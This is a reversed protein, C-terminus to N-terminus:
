IKKKFLSILNFIKKYNKSNIEELHYKKDIFMLLRKFTIINNAKLTRLPYKKMHELISRMEEKDTISYIWFNNLKDYKIHGLLLTNKINELIKKNKQSIHFTLTIKNMINFLGKADVLGSLWSTNKIIKKINWNNKTAGEDNEEHNDDRQKHFECLEKSESYENNKLQEQPEINYAEVCKQWQKQKEETLLKGELKQLLMIINNKKATRWRVAKVGSRKTINGFGVNKKLFALTQSDKENLIIEINVYGQKNLLISGDGDILGGLWYYFDEQDKKEKLKTNKFGQTDKELGNKITSIDRTTESSGKIQNGASQNKKILNM